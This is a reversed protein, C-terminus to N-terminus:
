SKYIKSVSIGGTQKEKNLQVLFFTHFKLNIILFTFNHKISYFYIAITVIASCYSVKIEVSLNTKNFFLNFFFVIFM